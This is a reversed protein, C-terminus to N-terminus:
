NRSKNKEKLVNLKQLTKEEEKKLYLMYNKLDENTQMGIVINILKM